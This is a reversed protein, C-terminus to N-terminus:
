ISKVFTEFHDYFEEKTIQYILRDHYEGRFFYYKSIKGVQKFGVKLISKISAQNFSFINGILIRLNLVNFGFDSILRLAETGYGKGREDIEGIFGGVEAFGHIHNVKNLSYTGLIKNDSKRVVYFQYNNANKCANEMYIREGEETIVSSITGIGRSLTEDNVWKTFLEINNMDLPALYLKEGEIKKYLM